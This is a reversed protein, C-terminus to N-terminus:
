GAPTLVPRAHIEGRPTNWEKEIQSIRDSIAQESAGAYRANAQKVAEVVLPDAALTGTALIREHFFMAVESATFEAITRFHQGWHRDLAQGARSVVILGIACIPIVTLLLGTLLRRLPIRLEYRDGPM